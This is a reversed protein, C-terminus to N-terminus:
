LKEGIAKRALAARAAHKAARMRDTLRACFAKDEGQARGAAAGPHNCHIIWFKEEAEFLEGAAATLAETLAEVRAREATLADLLAIANAPSFNAIHTATSFDCGGGALAGDQCWIPSVTLLHKPEGSLAVWPGGTAKEAAARLEALRIATFIDM